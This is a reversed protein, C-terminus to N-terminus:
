PKRQDVFHDGEVQVVPGFNVGVHRLDLGLNLFLPGRAQM